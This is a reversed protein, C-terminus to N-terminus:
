RTPCRSTCARRARRRRPVRGPRRRADRLVHLRRHRAHPQEDDGPRARPRVGRPRPRRRPEVDRRQRRRRGGPPEANLLSGRPAIVTVPRLAGANPPIDPDTLVRVAFLCASVTVALPCNLNGHHQAASGTFDLTLEDGDVTATLCLEIDGERGELVDTPAACATRCRARPVRAHAAGRVRDGRRRRRALEDAGIRGAIEALRLAGVRNAALQARLDARRQEPRRM